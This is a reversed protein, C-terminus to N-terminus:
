PPKWTVCGKSQLTALDEVLGMLEDLRKDLRQEMAELAARTPPGDRRLGQCLDELTEHGPVPNSTCLQVDLRQIQETVAHIKRLPQSVADILADFRENIFNTCKTQLMRLDKAVGEQLKLFTKPSITDNLWRFGDLFEKTSVVGDKDHDLWEFLDGLDQANVSTHQMLQKTVDTWMLMTNFEERSIEGSDDADAKRFLQELVQAAMIGREQERDKSETNMKERAAIMKESVVGTMVALLAWAAFIYFVVACLRLVPMKEFLPRFRMLSWCSMSEFLVFMSSTVSSFMARVEDPSVELAAL